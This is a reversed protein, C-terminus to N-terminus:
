SNPSNYYLIGHSTISNEPNYYIIIDGGQPRYNLTFTTGNKTFDIKNGNELLYMKEVDNISFEFRYSKGIQLNNEFPFDAYNFQHPFKYTYCMSSINRNTLSNFLHQSNVKLNFISVNVYPMNEFVEKAIPSELCQYENNEPLHSLIFEEPKTNFWYTDYEQFTVLKGNDNKGYGSGWTADMLLWKQNIKIANWAHNSENIRTGEQYGYGKSYGHVEIIELGMAKGIAVALTSYGACVGTKSKFVAEASQNTEDTSNNNYNYDDYRINHTLWAYLLLSKDYESNSKENICDALENISTIQDNDFGKVLSDIGLYNSKITKPYQISNEIENGASDIIQQEYSENIVFDNNEFTPSEEFNDTSHSKNRASALLEKGWKEILSPLDAIYNNVKHKFKPNESYFYVFLIVSIILLIHRTKM